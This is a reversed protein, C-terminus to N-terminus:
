IIKHIYNIKNTSCIMLGEAENMKERTNILANRSTHKSYRQIHTLTQQHLHSRGGLIEKLMETKNSVVLSM